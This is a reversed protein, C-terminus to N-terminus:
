STPAGVVVATLGDAVCAGVDGLCACGVKWQAKDQMKSLAGAPRAEFKRIEGEVSLLFTVNRLKGSAVARGRVEVAGWM